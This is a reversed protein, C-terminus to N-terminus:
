VTRRFKFKRERMMRGKELAMYCIQQWWEKHRKALEDKVKEKDNKKDGIM